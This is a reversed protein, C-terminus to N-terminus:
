EHVMVPAPVILPEVVPAETVTIAFVTHADIVYVNVSWTVLFPHIDLQLIITVTVGGGIAVNLLVGEFIM